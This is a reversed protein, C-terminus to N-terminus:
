DDHPPTEDSVGEDKWLKRFFYSLLLFIGGFALFLLVRWIADIRSLDILFLKGVVLFLTLLGVVRVTIYNKRLGLILLAIGYVGWASTIFGQYNPLNSLERYLLLLIGIHILVGFFRRDTIQKIRSFCAISTVAWFLMDTLAQANLFPLDPADLIVLRQFAWVIMGTLYIEGFRYIARDYSYRLYAFIGATVVILSVFHETGHLERCLVGSILTFGAMMYVRVNKIRDSIFGVAFIFGTVFADALLEKNLFADPRSDLFYVLVIRGLVIFALVVYLIHSFAAIVRDDTKHSILFLVFAETGITIMATPGDLVLSLSVTFLLLGILGNTYVLDSKVKNIYLLFTVAGYTLSAILCVWGWTADSFNWLTSSMALVIIPTSLCLTHVYRDVAKKMEPAIPKGGLLLPPYAWNDPKIQALAERMLPILWYMLWVAILGYQLARRDAIAQSKDVPIGNIQTVIFVAWGGIVTIILLLRWGKFFYVACSAAILICTYLVLGPINGQGTYLLFPTGLGGLVGIISLSPENQRLSLAYSLVTVIVMGGFAVPHSVLSFLQFAAFDSIYFTAIGGGLLVLAFHRRTKYIKLGFGCLILGVAIGFLIRIPPTIWGQDISYKFAFVVSFLILGIGIKNLWFESKKMYDPITFSPKTELPKEDIPSKSIDADQPQQGPTSELAPKHRAPSHVPPKTKHESTSVPKKDVDPTAREDTMRQEPSSQATKQSAQHQLYVTVDYLTKEISHVKKSLREVTEQLKKLDDSDSM